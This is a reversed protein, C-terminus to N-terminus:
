WIRKEVERGKRKGEGGVREMYMSMKEGYEKRVKGEM